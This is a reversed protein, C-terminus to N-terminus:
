CEGISISAAMLTRHRGNIIEGMWEEITVEQGTLAPNNTKLTTIIFSDYGIFQLLKAAGNEIWWVTAATHDVRTPLFEDGSRVMLESDDIELWSVSEDSPECGVGITCTEILKCARIITEAKAPAYATLSFVLILLFRM